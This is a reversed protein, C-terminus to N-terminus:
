KECVIKLAPIGINTDKWLPNGPQPSWLSNGQIVIRPVQSGGRLTQRIGEAIVEPMVDSICHNKQYRCRWNCYYCELPLCVATTLPSYPMFRGFHGGGLLIVNPTGVACSIHALGAEAGVTLRCRKLVAATQRLTIKGCFNFTRVGIPNLNQQNLEFEQASGLGIVAIDSNRFVQSLATGYRNYIRVAFQAGAFLGITKEKQLNNEQFLKDAFDEDEQSTWIMPQLVPVDMGLSKLFDKHREIEPKYEEKSELVTTYFQNHKDRLEASINCLNGNIAIREKAGSDITLADTLVDRSYVSNLALDAGVSRLQQIINSRYQEDQYARNKNYVLINDTFPCSEYLAAIHEQCVVTIKADGYKERIHPLMSSALVNDGISDTRIWLINKIHTEPAKPQPRFKAICFGFKEKSSTILEFRPDSQIQLFSKHHKIHYIDDLAVYCEGKLQSILYNFEVNGIHGGSDLLVFDPRYDFNELCQGLLNDPLGDFNTERYYLLAREHEQHDVFIDDFEISKVCKEEIEQITPLIGRPVSLGNLPTVCGLLGGNRLNNMATQHYKPNVEITYFAADDIGLQRLSSAIITTTGTGLYTGTEIIKKPRSKKFLNQIYTSFDSEAAVKTGDHVYDAAIKVRGPKGQKNLTDDAVVVSKEPQDIGKKLSYNKKSHSLAVKYAAIIERTCREWSFKKAQELSKLSMNERLSPKLYIELMSHCLGDADDPLLMIGADGVVEPLSSINSTIVPIGCQMAELPPLGFGEYFSPYVFTLAGSYLSALDQDDVFGTLIIREKLLPNNDIEKFIKDYNWGKTGVLVLYLDKINEQRVIKSFCRIVHDINKRVDLTSLSLIYPADPIGYKKRVSAIRVSDNCQYFLGPDAALHTVFVREPNIGTYECLDKKTFHSISIAWDTPKLSNMIGQFMRTFNPDYFHPLKVPMIDFVTLFRTPKTIEDPLPYLSSHFIDIEPFQSQYLTIDKLSPNSTMYSQCHQFIGSLIASFSLEVEQSTALGQAMYEIVRFVGTRARPDYQGQGLVSIDYLVNISRDTEQSIKTSPFENKFFEVVAIANACHFPNGYTANSVEDPNAEAWISYPPNKHNAVVKLFSIQANNQPIGYKTFLLNLYDQSFQILWREDMFKGFPVTILSRGDDALMDYIKSIAKLPAELDRKEIDEGYSKDSLLGQGVHEVTSVSLIADYKDESSIDMLDINEVGDAKEFKDIVKRAGIKTNESFLEGYYNLVNGVELTRKGNEIQSLFNIAVPIEVTRETPPYNNYKMRNYPLRQNKFLFADQQERAMQFTEQGAKCSSIHKYLKDFPPKFAVGTGVGHNDEIFLYEPFKLKYEDWLKQLYLHSPHNIDDFLMVGGPALHAFAIDLDLKAGEYTHDGDINILEFQQLNHPNAWFGPLKEHSNGVILAPLNRIGLNYLEEIVFSPGPNTVHIGQEPISGYNPIWMDFGYAITEPSEILIQAISRGRRVGVELYSVPKFNHAYWNLFVPSDFWLTKERISEQFAQIYQELWHEKQCRLCISVVRKKIEIDTLSSIIQRIMEEKEIAITNVM